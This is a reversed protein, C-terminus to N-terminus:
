ITLENENKIETAKAMVNKLVRLILMMFAAGFAFIFLPLYFLGCVAAAIAVFGCCWSLYRLYAVTKATFVAEALINRLIKMIFILALWGAPCCVYFATLMIRITSERMIDGFFWRAGPIAAVMLVALLAMFAYTIFLTLRTSKESTYM